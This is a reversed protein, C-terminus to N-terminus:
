RISKLVTEPVVFSSSVLYHKPILAEPYSTQEVSILAVKRQDKAGNSLADECMEPWGPEKLGYPNDSCDTELTSLLGATGFLLKM